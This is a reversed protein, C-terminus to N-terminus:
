DSGETSAAAMTSLESSMTGGGAAAPLKTSSKLLQHPSSQTVHVTATGADDGDLPQIGVVYADFTGAKVTVKESSEVTLLMPRVKQSMPEFIRYTTQYGDALPLGSLAVIFAADGAFVPADLTKDVATKSGGVGLEGTIRDSSYDLAVNAMGASEYRLPALTKRDLDFTSKITNGGMVVADTLRWCAQGGRKAEVISRNLSLDMIQGRAELKVGYVLSVPRVRDGDAVPLPATTAEAVLEPSPGRALKVTAPDVTISALHAALDEPVDEQLRGGLHTALFTEMAVAMAMRNAPARFGHGEDPAVIYQVAQGKDRLAAVIADSEAQKVRPDNAGHVVLMPVQIRDIFNIPSRSELDERDAPNEPDGVRLYWSGKLFPRWYAPFSEILTILSSPAVYPIACAYLEPTFAVGALTAYGGYSGGHICVRKPDAIGQKVMLNVADTLDHQMAGTGWEHNGANLFKEGYGSSGRFNPQFVAYGRNAFFQAYADFDWTDRAWPGGHPHLILPLNKAPVGKPLTLYGHITMGDRATYTMPKMPALSERPLEERVRYQLTFSGKERDYLYTAGPEVDSSVTVLSYRMDHTSSPVSYDGDPLNKRMRELDQKARGTKPYIRVRDGIYYTAMLEDTQEDFVAGGLDVEKKPDSEVVVTKGTAPDLLELRALDVEEGKNTSIYIRKEEPDWGQPFVQELYTVGYVSVLKEGEVRLIENGGDEKQRYALRVDGSRDYVWFGVKQTNEILLTREGTAIKVRYVDHYTADRHNLGVLIEEPKDEPVAYIIARVNELPTLDRAPPVGTEAEAAATPDVAYVHYNENGGKDQVYLVFKSDQSWFYGTVPRSDATLPKAADFPEERKKLWVNRVDRYPKIFTMYTGDPSLQASAIEPDGFILARDIIPPLEARAPAALALPAAIAVAAAVWLYFRNM